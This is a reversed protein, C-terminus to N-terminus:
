PLLFSLSHNVYLFALVVVLSQLLIAKLLSVLPASFLTTLHLVNHLNLTPLPTKLRLKLLVSCIPHYSVILDSLATSHRPHLISRINLTCLTFNTPGPNLEIDGSLSLCSSFSQVPVFSTSSCRHSSIDIFLSLCVGSLCDSVAPFHSINFYCLPPLM